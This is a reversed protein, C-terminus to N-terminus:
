TERYTILQMFGGDMHLQQHCHFLTPGPNDAIFDVEVSGYPKLNVVDKLIGGTSKGDISVLEFSHRHLHLPHACGSADFFGLRYRRGEFVRLANIKPFSRGNITWTDTQSESNEFKQFVMPFIEDPAINVPAGGFTTYDWSTNQPGRWVPPGSANAYEVTIGLGRKREEADTSALAWVGPQNMEVIADIREATALFITEVPQPNPVPNGDLATVTFTHGPLSLTVNETASANLFRFLVRQGLRVRIPPADSFLKDNFCAFQYQVECHHSKMRMLTPQWHHVALLVEQDYAGPDASKEVILFGFQGTYTSRGLDLGASAHTHYWRTGAPRPTFHYRLHTGPEIMSSGEEMTGDNMPDIALRHWHVLEAGQSANEVDITVPKGERLRLAPGPVFGNYALTEITIGRALELALPAIRLRFDPEGKERQLGGSSHNEAHGHRAFAAGMVAMSLRYNFERRNV